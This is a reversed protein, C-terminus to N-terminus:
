PLVATLTAVAETQTENCPQSREGPKTSTLAALWSKKWARFYLANWAADHPGETLCAPRHGPGSGGRYPIEALAVPGARQPLDEEVTRESPVLDPIQGAQARGRHAVQDGGQLRIPDDDSGPGSSATLWMVSPMSDTIASDPTSRRAMRPTPTATGPRTSCRSSATTCPWLTPQCATGSSAISRLRVPRGMRTSLPAFVRPWASFHNPAARPVSLATMTSRPIPTPVHMM